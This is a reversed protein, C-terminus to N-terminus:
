TDGNEGVARGASRLRERAIKGSQRVSDGQVITTLNEDAAVLWGANQADRRIAAPDLDIDLIGRRM